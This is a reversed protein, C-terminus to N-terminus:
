SSASLCRVQSTRPRGAMQACSSLAALHPMGICYGSVKRWLGSERQSARLSWTTQMDGQAESASVSAFVRASCKSAPPRTVRIARVPLHLWPVSACIRDTPAVHMFGAAM